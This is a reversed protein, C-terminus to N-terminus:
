NAYEKASTSDTEVTSIEEVLHAELMQLAGPTMVDRPLIFGNTEVGKRVGVMIRAIGDSDSELPECIGAVDCLVMMLGSCVLCLAEAQWVESHEEGDCTFMLSGHRLASEAFQNASHLNAARLRVAVETSESKLWHEQFDRAAIAQLRLLEARDAGEPASVSDIVGRLRLFFIMQLAGIAMRNSTEIVSEQAASLAMQDRVGREPHGLAVVEPKGALKWNKITEKSTEDSTTSTETNM